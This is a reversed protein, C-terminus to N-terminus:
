RSGPDSHGAVEALTTPALGGTALASLCSHRLSHTSLRGETAALGATRKAANLARRVDREQVPGGDAKSIVLDGELSHPLADAVWRAGPSACAPDSRGAGRRGDESGEGHRGPGYIPRGDAHGRRPRRQGLPAGSDRRRAPRRIGRARAGGALAGDVRRRCAGRPQRRRACRGPPRQAAESDRLTGARRPALPHPHRPSCWARVHRSRDSLGGRTWPSYRDRLARLVRGLDAATVDQARRDALGSLRGVPGAVSTM